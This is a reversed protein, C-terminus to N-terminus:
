DWVPLDPDLTFLAPPFLHVMSKWFLNHLDGLSMYEQKLLATLLDIPTKLDEAAYPGIALVGRTGEAFLRAAFVNRLLLTRGRDFPNDAVDIIFFPRLLDESRRSMVWSLEEARIPKGSNADILFAERPSISEGIQATIHVIGPLLDGSGSPATAEKLSRVISDLGHLRYLERLDLGAAGYGQRKLRQSEVDSQLILVRRQCRAPVRKLLVDRFREVGGLAAVFDSWGAKDKLENPTGIAEIARRLYHLTDPLPVDQLTRYFQGGTRHGLEWPVAAFAPRVAKVAMDDANERRAALWRVWRRAGLWRVWPDRQRSRELPSLWGRYVDYGKSLSSGNHPWVGDIEHRLRATGASEWAAGTLWKWLASLLDYSVTNRENLIYAFEGPYLDDMRAATGLADMFSSDRELRTEADTDSEGHSALLRVKGSAPDAEISVAPVRRLLKAPPVKLLDRKLDALPSFDDQELEAVLAALLDSWRSDQPPLETLHKKAAELFQRARGSSGTATLREAEELLVVGAYEPFQRGRAAWLDLWNAPPALADPSVRRAVRLVPVLSDPANACDDRLSKLAARAPAEQGFFILAAAISLREQVSMDPTVDPLNIRREVRAEGAGFLFPRLAALRASSPVEALMVGFRDADVVNGVGEALLTATAIVTYTSSLNREKELFTLTRDFYDRALQQEGTRACQRIRLLNLELEILPEPFVQSGALPDLLHGSYRPSRAVDLQYRAHKLLVQAAAAAYQLSQYGSRAETYNKEAETRRFTAAALDALYELRAPEINTQFGRILAEASAYDFRDIALRMLWGTAEEHAPFPQVVVKRASEEVERWRGLPFGLDGVKLMLESVQLPSANERIAGVLSDRLRDFAAEPKGETVDLGALLSAIFYPRFAHKSGRAREAIALAKAYWARRSDSALAPDDAHLLAALVQEDPSTLEEPEVPAPSKAPSAGINRIAADLHALRVRADGQKGCYRSLDAYREGMTARLMPDKKDPRRMEQIALALFSELAAEGLTQEDVIATNTFHSVPQRNEDLFDGSFVSQALEQVANLYDGDANRCAELYDRWWRKAVQGKAQYRHYLAEGLQKGAPGITRALREFYEAAAHNLELWIPYKETNQTLLQRM